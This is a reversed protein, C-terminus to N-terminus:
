RLFEEADDGYYFFDCFAGLSLGLDSNYNVNPLPVYEWGTKAAEQARVTLGLFLLLFGAAIRKM